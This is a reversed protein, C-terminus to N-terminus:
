QISYAGNMVPHIAHIPTNITDTNHQKLQLLSKHNNKQLHNSVNPTLTNQTSNNPKATQNQIHISYNCQDPTLVFSQIAKEVWPAIVIPNIVLISELWQSDRWTKPLTHNFNLPLYLNLIEQELKKKPLNIKIICSAQPHCLFDELLGSYWPHAHSRPWLLKEPSSGLGHWSVTSKNHNAIEHKQGQLLAQILLHSEASNANLALYLYDQTQAASAQLQLKLEYQHTNLTSQITAHFLKWGSHICKWAASCERLQHGLPVLGLYHGTDIEQLHNKENPWHIIKATDINVLSEPYHIRLLHEICHDTHHELRHQLQEIVNATTPDIAQPQM